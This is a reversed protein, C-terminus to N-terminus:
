PFRLAPEPKKWKGPVVKVDLPNSIIVVNTGEVRRAVVTYISNTKCNTIVGANVHCEYIGGPSVSASTTPRNYSGSESFTGPPDVVSRSIVPERRSHPIIDIGVWWTFRFSQNTSFNRIRVVLEVPQNTKIETGGDKLHISMQLNSIVPGWEYHNTDGAVALHCPILYFFVSYFINKM